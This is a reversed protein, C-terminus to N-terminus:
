GTFDQQYLVLSTSSCVENEELRPQAEHESSLKLYVM